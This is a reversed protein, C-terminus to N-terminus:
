PGESETFHVGKAELTDEIVKSIEREFRDVGFREANARCATGVDGLAICRQVAAGIAEPTQEDFFVGTEGEIVTDLAGGARYAVVPLGCAQAEVAVIGFDETQPFVLVSSTQFALRVEERPTHGMLRIQDPEIALQEALSRLHKEQSGTGIVCLREGRLTAARVALDARKYPELAGAFLWGSRQSPPPMGQEGHAHSTPPYFMEQLTPADPLSELAAHPLIPREYGTPLKFYRTDVPPFVVRSEREYCRAIERQIHTSNALFLNVNESTKKDWGRLRPGFTQLGIARLGGGRGEAYQETQSWLYRAPAHCYCIHPVGEPAKLGKMAASSTSLLLDIPRRKHDDALLGSLHEIAHPYMPLMWRRMRRAGPADSLFSTRVSSIDRVGREGNPPTPFLELAGADEFMTYLGAVEYKRHVVRAIHELVAEGGRYGVLWDHALAIRVRTGTAVGVRAPAIERDAQTRTTPAGTGSGGGAAAFESEPSYLCTDIM